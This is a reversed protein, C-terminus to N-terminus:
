GGTPGQEGGQSERDVSQWLKCTIQQHHSTTQLPRSTRMVSPFSDAGKAERIKDSVVEQEVGCRRVFPIYGNSIDSPEVVKHAGRPEVLLWCKTQKNKKNRQPM